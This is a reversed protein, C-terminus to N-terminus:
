GSIGVRRTFPSDFVGTRNFEREVALWEQWRPYLAMIRESTLGNLQGWHPRADLDALRQETEAVEDDMGLERAAELDGTAAEQERIAAVLPGLEAYRRGLERARAQDAHISPDALQDELEAYEALANDVPNGVQEAM